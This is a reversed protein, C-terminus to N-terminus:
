FSINPKTNTKQKLHRPDTPQYNTENRKDQLLVEKSSTGRKGQLLLRRLPPLQLKVPATKKKVKVKPEQTLRVIGQDPQVVAHSKVWNPPSPTGPLNGENHNKNTNTPANMLKFTIQNSSETMNQARRQPSCHMITYKLKLIDLIYLKFRKKPPNRLLQMYRM